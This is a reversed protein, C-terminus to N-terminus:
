PLGLVLVTLDDDLPRDGAYNALDELVGDRLGHVDRVCHRRLSEELRDFGFPDSSGEPTAEIVGDSYLFLKDGSELNAARTRVDITPRAGLPYSISELAQIEGSESVRYPFLHGASAYFMERKRPDILAYCLTTLLRRRASQYVMRNLTGFVAEVEPDFTVQVALASKAMSMVLGSAVGHGAVDGVAVALRGDDLALVDYFDGGVESSPVYRHSLQVGNLEPPLEPLISSQIGRATELEVKQREREAIRRVHPPVDEYRYVFEEGSLLYRFSLLAPLAVVLMILGANLQMSPHGAGAAQIAVPLVHAVLLALFSTFIGYRLFVVIAAGYFVASLVLTWSTPLVFAPPFFLATSIALAVIPGLWRGYRGFLGALWPVLFLQGFLANYLAYVLGFCLVPVLWWQTSSWGPFGGVLGFVLSGAPRLLLVAVTLGLILLGCILGRLSARAFTANRWQGRFLADFGALKESWQKRCSAEGVSWGLLGIIAMPMYFTFSFLIVVLITTMPKSLVGMGINVSIGKATALICILGLAMMLGGIQLGRRVGVEGAHYRRIFPVAVLLAIPVLLYIWAFQMLSLTQFLANLTDEDPDDFFSDFGVLQDGAFKVEVGYHFREGLLAESDVYHLTTDRRNERDRTRTEPEEYLEPDLGLDSLFRDARRRATIADLPEAKAAEEVLRELRLLKGTPSLSVKHAWRNGSAVPDHITVSWYNLTSFLRSARVADVSGGAQTFESLRLQLTESSVRNVIVFPSDPLEGLDQALELATREADDRSIEWAAPEFPMLRPMAWLLFFIAAAGAALWTLLTRAKM